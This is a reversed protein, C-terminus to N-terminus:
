YLDGNSRDESASASKESAPTERRAVPVAKGKSKSSSSEGDSRYYSYYTTYYQYQTDGSIDVNNLVLGMLRGGANEVTSRARLLAKLPMRKPQLVLLTADAKNVLLSADSVGLIPPSDFIVVDFRKRAEAILKDMRYSSILGSPDLPTSGAPLMFLNPVKTRLVVDKLELDETLYDSLGYDGNIEAYRHLRPRRMDADIMLTSYGAQACVYALNCVTTSKGEGANSSVIAFTTANMVTKKLEINTRLIRYAEADPGENDQLMLIGADRPIVAMVPLGLRQEAEELTKVSTDFYNFVLAAIIGALLGIVAGLIINLKYNPKSPVLPLSAKDVMEISLRPMNVNIRDAALDAKMSDRLEMSARLDNLQTHIKQVQARKATLDTEAETIRKDLAALEDQRVVLQLSLAKRMAVLEEDLKAALSEIRKDMTIVDPHREGRYVLMEERDRLCKEYEESLSRVKASALTEDTQLINHMVYEHLELGQLDRLKTIHVTLESIKSRLPERDAVLKTYSQYEPTGMLASTGDTGLFDLSPFNAELLYASLAEREGQVVDEQKMYENERVRVADYLDKLEKEDRWRRYAEPIAACIKQAMHADSHTVEVSVLNTSTHPTVLIMSRLMNIATLESVGWETVLDLSEVVKSLTLESTLIEYQTETWAADGQEALRITSVNRDSSRQIKEGPPKISFNTVSTYEPTMIYTVVFSATLVLLFVAAILKWRSTLVKLYDQAHLVGERGKADSGDAM